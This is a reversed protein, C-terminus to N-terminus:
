AGLVARLRKGLRKLRHPLREAMSGRPTLYSDIGSDSVRCSAGNAPVERGSTWVIGNVVLQRLSDIHWASHSDLGTFCFSRGGTPRQWAWSAVDSWEDDGGKREPRAWVLPFVPAGDFQIAVHWGDHSRWPRVGHGIEHAPAASHVASWHGRSSTGAVYAGGFWRYSEEQLSTPLRIAQHLLVLGGGREVLAEIKQVRRPGCALPHKSGGGTYFVVADAEDICRDDIPWGLEVVTATVGETQQLLERLLACGASYDHHGLRDPIKVPGAILVVKTDRRDAAAATM